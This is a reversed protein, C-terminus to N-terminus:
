FVGFHDRRTKKGYIECITQNGVFFCDISLFILYVLIFVQFLSNMNATLEDLSKGKFTKNFFDEIKKLVENRERNNSRKGSRFFPNEEFFVKYTISEVDKLTEIM